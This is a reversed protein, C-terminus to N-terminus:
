DEEYDLQFTAAEDDPEDSGITVPLSLTPEDAVAALPVPERGSEGPRPGSVLCHAVADVLRLCSSYRGRKERSLGRLLAPALPDPLGRVLRTPPEPYENLIQYIVSSITQGRFPRLGTLMEYLIVSLAFQDTRGDVERGLIQEPSMYVPTGLAEGAQTLQSEALHVLGFDTIKVEGGTLIFLNSPKIDRHVLGRSHAYDLGAAVERAVRLVWPHSPRPERLLRRKLSEGELFEMVIYDLDRKEDHGVDLITVISPHSLSGAARAERHFREILEPELESRAVTKIAVNRNLRPDNGLYVVGMAGRGIEDLIDYRGLTQLGHDVAMM